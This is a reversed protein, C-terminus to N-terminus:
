GGSTPTTASLLCIKELESEYAWSLSHDPLMITVPYEITPGPDDIMVTTGPPHKNIPAVLIARHTLKM